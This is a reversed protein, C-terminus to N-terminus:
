MASGHLSGFFEAMCLTRQLSHEVNSWANSLQQHVLQAQQRLQAHQMITDGHIQLTVHLIAQIFEFNTKSELTSGLFVMLTAIDQLEEESEAGELM